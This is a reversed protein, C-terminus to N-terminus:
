VRSRAVRGLSAEGVGTLTDRVLSRVRRIDLNAVAFARGLQHATRWAAPDRFAALAALLAEPTRTYRVADPVLPQLFRQMATGDGVCALVPLGTMLYDAIRSAISFKGFRDLALPGSLFAVHCRALLSEYDARSLYSSMQLRARIHKPFELMHQGSYFVEIDPFRRHMEDWAAQFIALGEAYPKGVMVVRLPQGVPPPQAVSESVEHGIPIVQASPGAFKAMQEAIADSIALTGSAGGILDRFGPMAEPVLGEPHYIDMVHLVYPCGLIRLLSRMKSAHEEHAAIVYAVDAKLGHRALLGRFRHQVVEDGNWWNIRLAREVRLAVRRGRGLYRPDEIRFSRGVESKGGYFNTLYLHFLSPDTWDFMRIMQAGTGHRYSLACESIVCMRM